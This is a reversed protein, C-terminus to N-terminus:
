QTDNNTDEQLRWISNPSECERQEIINDRIASLIPTKVKPIIIFYPRKTPDAGGMDHLDIELLAEEDTFKERLFFGSYEGGYSTTFDIQLVQKAM